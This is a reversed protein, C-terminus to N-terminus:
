TDGSTSTNPSSVECARSQARILEREMLAWAPPTCPTDITLDAHNLNLHM